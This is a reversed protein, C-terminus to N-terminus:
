RCHNHQHVTTSAAELYAKKTNPGKRPLQRKRLWNNNNYGGQLRSAHAKTFQSTAPM